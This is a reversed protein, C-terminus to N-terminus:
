IFDVMGESFSPMYDYLYEKEIVSVPGAEIHIIRIDPIWDIVKPLARNDWRTFIDVRYGRHRLHKALESVYVNQGGSDVGGLEALPSAHESIFAVTKKM